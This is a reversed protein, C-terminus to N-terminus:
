EDKLFPAEDGRPLPDQRRRTRRDESARYGHGKGMDSRSTAGTEAVAAAVIASVEESSM